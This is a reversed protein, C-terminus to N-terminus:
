VEGDEEEDTWARQGPLADWDVPAFVSPILELKRAEHVAVARLAVYYRDGCLRIALMQAEGPDAFVGLLDWYLAIESARSFVAYVVPDSM